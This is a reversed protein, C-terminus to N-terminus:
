ELEVVTGLTTEEQKSKERALRGKGRALEVEKWSIKASDFVVLEEDYKECFKLVEESWTDPREAIVARIGAFFADLVELNHMALFSHASMEHTHLLHHIYARTYSPRYIPGADSDRASEGSFEPTDVGHFIRNPSSVPSCAACPCVPTSKSDVQALAGLFSDALPGFDLTYREDYLNHGIDRKSGSTTRVPFEFDLAVGVDAARQAWHGDFLDIGVSSIYHLVEHPSETSNILRLKTEPLSSLSAKLLPIIQETHSPIVPNLDTPSSPRPTRKETAELSQRLPVLDFTYGIVGENLSHLPKIVEAEPGFLRELLSDSFAKRAPLSIGGSMQVFVNPPTEGEPTRLITSLWAASREISKTLRKQSYPPDTFPIDSLAFVVDPKCAHAYSRWDAPTLKRVGRLSYVSVHNQGNPPMERGDYPDRASLSLIHKGPSFGLFSHLPNEGPQLTPVPPNHELFTEFPVNVWRIANTRRHHDRSLHPIVGRSTATLIGPTQIQITEAGIGPRRSIITGIRPGYRTQSSLSFSFNAVASPQSM